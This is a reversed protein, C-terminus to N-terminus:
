DIFHPLMYIYIAWLVIVVMKQSHLVEVVRFQLLMSTSSCNSSTYSYTTTTNSSSMISSSTSISSDSDRIFDFGRKHIM